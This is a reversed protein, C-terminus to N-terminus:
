LFQTSPITLYRFKFQIKTLNDFSMFFDFLCYDHINVFDNKSFFTLISEWNGVQANEDIYLKYKPRNAM